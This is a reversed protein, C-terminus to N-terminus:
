ARGNYYVAVNTNSSAVVRLRAFKAASNFSALLNNSATVATPTSVAVYFNDDDVPAVMITVTVTGGSLNRIFYSNESYAGVNRPLLNTTGSSVTITTTAEVFGMAGIAVSDQTATLDRIDLNTAVVNVADRATTLNRINLNSATVTVPSLDSFRFLGDSEVSIPIYNSGNMGYFVTRLEKAANNFVFNNM